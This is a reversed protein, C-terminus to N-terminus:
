PARRVPKCIIFLILVTCVFVIALSAGANPQSSPTTSPTDSSAGSIEPNQAVAVTAFVLALILALASRAFRKFM